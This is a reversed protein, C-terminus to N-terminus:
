DFGCRIGLRRRVPFHDALKGIGIGVLVRRIGREVPSTQIGAVGYGSCASAESLRGLIRSIKDGHAAPVKRRDDEEFLKKLGKHRFTEIVEEGSWLLGKKDITVKCKAIAM